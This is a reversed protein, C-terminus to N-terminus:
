PATPRPLDAPLADLLRRSLARAFPTTLHHTDRFVLYPGIVVPCPETPCVWPTPDIFSAGAAAAVQRDAALRGPAIASKSPNACALVDDLHKSVCVPADGGPRPTDGILAVEGASASLTALSRAIAADWLKPAESVSKPTAGDLVEYQRSMAMVVLTPHEEAVLDFVKSRWADCETYPRDFTPNWVTIDAPSCASKTLSILRWGEVRALRELAPFWQAAHSDGFLVVTTASSPDGFVCEKPTISPQDLHCGDNYIVPADARIAALAPTLNAPVPGGPTPPRAAAASPSTSSPARSAPPGESAGAEGGTLPPTAEAPASSAAESAEALPDAPLANPDDAAQAVGQPLSANAASGVSVALLAVVVSMTGALALTRGVRHGVLRGRRIPDEIWRQSAAAVVVSLGALGLREALSLQGDIAAAPLVLIPWHWLYLSYSIRGLYRMPQLTLLRAPLTAIGAAGGAIVLAAGVTPLLAALGPFPTSTQLVLGALGILALGAAVTVGAARVPMRALREVSLALLGGLALEWARTPLSFFAWPQSATTLVLSLAFSGIAIAVVVLGLRRLRAADGPIARAVLLLIAPWFLYFQEEVGLSWFHLLPSPALDSALYDTAQAAFRVNSVYLASAAADGAIDPIRLPPLLVVSLLLTVAIAVLAAPLLRRARRAYFKPLDIRGTARLERVILGTILFGSLVFFVDVGVYGGHIRPVGAHYALVLGVAVARLGELEPRFGGDARPDEPSAGSM